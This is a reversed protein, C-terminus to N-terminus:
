VNDANALRLREKDLLERDALIAMVAPKVPETESSNSISPRRYEGNADSFFYPTTLGTVTSGCNCTTTVSITGPRCKDSTMELAVLLGDDRFSRSLPM